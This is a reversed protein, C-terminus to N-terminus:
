KITKDKLLEGDTSYFLYHKSNGKEVKVKYVKMPDMPNEKYIEEKEKAIKWNSYTGKSIADSISRPLETMMKRHIAIKKGEKSYIANHRSRDETFEAVYYQPAKSSYLSPNYEYWDSSFDHEPYGHWDVNVVAPYEEVFNKNVASPIKEKDIRAHRSETKHSAKHVPKKVGQGFITTTFAFTLVAMAFLRLIKNKM